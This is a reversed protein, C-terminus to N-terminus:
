NNENAVRHNRIENRIEIGHQHDCVFVCVCVCVCVRVIMGCWLVAPTSVCGAAKPVKYIDERAFM